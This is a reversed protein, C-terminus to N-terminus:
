LGIQYARWVGFIGSPSELSLRHKIEHSAADITLFENTENSSVLVTDGRPTFVLHYIRQGAQIIKKTKGTQADIIQIKGDDEKGSFTVWVERQDPKVVAYVPDGVLNVFGLYSLDKLSILSLKKEGVMPFYIKDGAVSWSEMHPMKVPMPSPKRGTFLVEKARKQDPIWLDVLSARDSQFHGTVYYRGEPTVLADFPNPASAEIKRDIKYQRGNENKADLDPVLRWIEEADMLACMFSNDFSDVVGTVRSVIDNGRFNVKAELRQSVKFKEVDVFTIGGPRYESVAITKGDQSIALGISNESTQLIGAEKLEPLDIRTLNGSRSAVYGYQLTSDVIMSAHKLDGGIHIKKLIKGKQFDVAVINGAEREVVFVVDGLNKIVNGSGAPQACSHFLLFLFSFTLLLFAGYRMKELGIKRIMPVYDRKKM